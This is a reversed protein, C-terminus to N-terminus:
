RHWTHKIKVNNDLIFLITLSAQHSFFKRHNDPSGDLSRSDM